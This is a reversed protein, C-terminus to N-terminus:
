ENIVYIPLPLYPMSERTPGDTHQGTNDEICTQHTIASEAEPEYWSEAFSVM